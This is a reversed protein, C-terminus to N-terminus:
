RMGQFYVIRHEDGCFPPGTPGIEVQCVMCRRAREEMAKDGTARYDRRSEMPEQYETSQLPVIDGREDIRWKPLWGPAALLVYIHVVGDPTKRMVRGIGYGPNNKIENVCTSAAFTETQLSIERTSLPREKLAEVIRQLQPSNEVKRFHFGERPTM